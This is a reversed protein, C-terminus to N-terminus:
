DGRNKVAVMCPLCIDTGCKINSPGSTWLSWFNEGSAMNTVVWPGPWFGSRRKGTDLRQRSSVWEGTQEKLSRLCRQTWAWLLKLYFWCYSSSSHVFECKRRDRKFKIRCQSWKTGLMNLNIAWYARMQYDNPSLLSSECLSQCSFSSYGWQEARRFVRAYWGTKLGKEELSCPSIDLRKLIWKIYSISKYKVM